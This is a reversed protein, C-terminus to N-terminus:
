WRRGKVCRPVFQKLLYEVGTWWRSGQPFVAVGPAGRLRGAMGRFFDLGQPVKVQCAKDGTEEQQDQPFSDGDRCIEHGM